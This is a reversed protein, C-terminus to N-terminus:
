FRCRGGLGARGGGSWSARAMQTELCWGMLTPGWGGNMVRVRVMTRVRSRVDVPRAWTMTLGEALRGPTADVM